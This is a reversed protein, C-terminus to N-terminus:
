LVNKANAMKTKIKMAKSNGSIDFESFFSMRRGTINIVIKQKM